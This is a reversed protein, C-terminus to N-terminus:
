SRRQSVGERCGVEEQVKLFSLDRYHPKKRGELANIDKELEHKRKTCEVMAEQTRTSLEQIEMRLDSDRSSELKTKLTKRQSILKKLLNEEKLTSQKKLEISEDISQIDKEVGAIESQLQEDTPITYTSHRAYM